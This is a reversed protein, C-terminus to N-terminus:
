LGIKSSYTKLVISLVSFYSQSFNCPQFLIFDQRFSFYSFSPSTAWHYHGQASPQAQSGTYKRLFHNIIKCWEWALSVIISFVHLPSGHYQSPASNKGLPFFFYLPFFVFFALLFPSCLIQYCTLSIPILVHQLLKLLYTLSLVPAMSGRFPM